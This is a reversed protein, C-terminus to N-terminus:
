RKGEAETRKDEIEGLTVAKASVDPLSDLYKDVEARSILGYKVDRELSRIDFKKLETLKAM